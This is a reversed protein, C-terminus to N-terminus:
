YPSWRSRCEKGVRREASRHTGHGYLDYQAGASNSTATGTFDQHYVVRSSGDPNPLHPQRDKIGSDIGAVGVGAGTYGASWATEVGTVDNTLDDMVNMPHDITVSAIEPDAELAALASVPITFAASKIMHLKSHLRGGRGQMTAYHAATPVQKYQVIVRVTQGKATGQHAKALLGSLEPAIRSSFRGNSEGAIPNNWRQGFAMGTALLLVLSLRKGWAASHREGRWKPKQTKATHEMFDLDSSCVDSSWDSQCDGM